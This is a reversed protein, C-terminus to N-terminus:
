EEAGPDSLHVSVAGSMLKGHTSSRAARLWTQLARLTWVVCALPGFVCWVVGGGRGGDGRSTETYAYM